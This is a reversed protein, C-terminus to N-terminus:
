LSVLFFINVSYVFYVNFELHSPSISNSKTNFGGLRKAIDRFWEATIAVFPGDDIQPVDMDLPPSM